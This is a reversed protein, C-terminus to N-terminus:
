TVVAEIARTLAGAVDDIETHHGDAVLTRGGVVVTVVDSTTGGYVVAALRDTTNATATRVSRLDIEVFDAPAGEVLGADTRGLARHGTTTMAEVLSEVSHHGRRNTVLRTDMETARAEELMDISAHGDTGLCLREFERSPGVGDALDRETTPCMCVFSGSDNLLRIDEVDVHTAHIATTNSGLAGADRLIETPSAGLEARCRENEERRESVHVHLPSRRQGCWEAIRGIAQPAVARVSHVAAGVNVDDPADLQEIRHMWGDVDEDSFRVQAGELPEDSFGGRLYCTDLLTLRLGARRAAEILSESMANPRSYRAGNRDHHVYHFEGVATVGALAMEAYVATALDLYNDPDIQTAVRYMEERWTWFDGTTQHTRGRLARHFAHSHVNAFGPLVLGRLRIADSPAVQAPSIATIHEDEVEILVDRAVSGIWAFSAHWRQM